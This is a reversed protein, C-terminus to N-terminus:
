FPGDREYLVISERCADAWDFVFDDYQRLLPTKGCGEVLCEARGKPCHGFICLRGLYRDTGPEMCFIDVQHHAVGINEEALLENLARSRAKQLAKLDSCDDLWVALDIDKCEHLLQTGSRRYKRFRPVELALPKAVSGFLVIRVVPVCSKMEAAVAEAARRFQAQRLQMGQGQEDIERRTPKPTM